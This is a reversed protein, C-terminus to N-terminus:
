VIVLTQERLDKDCVEPTEKPSPESGGLGAGYKTEYSVALGWVVKSGYRYAHCPDPCSAFRRPFSPSASSDVDARLRSHCSACQLGVSEAVQWSITESGVM